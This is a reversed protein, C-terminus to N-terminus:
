ATYMSINPAITMPSQDREDNMVLQMAQQDMATLGPILQADVLPEEMAIRLALRAIVANLWRQPVELSQQMTGVDEVYRQRWIVIQAKEYTTSPTPWIRIIPTEAQRDLWFMTPRGTFTKDPLATYDDKSIRGMPIENPMNGLFGVDVSIAVSNAEKIQFAGETVAPDLDFWYWVGASYAASPITQLTTAALGDWSQINLAFTGGTAFKIGITSISTDATMTMLYTDAAPTSETYSIEQLTRFNCAELDITGLPTSVASLGLVCPLIQKDIAWLQLGVVPLESLLVFLADRATQLMESTIQQPKVRCRRFATDIVKTTDFTTTSVTGSTAM